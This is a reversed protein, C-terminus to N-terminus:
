KKKNAKDGNKVNYYGYLLIYCNNIINISIKKIKSINNNEKKLNNEKIVSSM